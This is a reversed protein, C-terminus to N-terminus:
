GCSFEFLNGVFARGIDNQKRRAKIQMRQELIYELRAFEKMRAESANRLRKEVADAFRRIKVLENRIRAVRDEAIVKHCFTPEPAPPKGHCFRKERRCVGWSMRESVREPLGGSVASLVDRHFDKDHLANGRPQERLIGVDLHLHM